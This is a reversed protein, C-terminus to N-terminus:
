VQLKGAETEWSRWAGIKKLTLIIEMLKPSEAM